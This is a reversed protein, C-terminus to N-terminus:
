SDTSFIDKSVYSSDESIQFDPGFKKKLNDSLLNYIDQSLAEQQMQLGFYKKNESEALAAEFPSLSVFYIKSQQIVGDQNSFIINSKNFDNYIKKLLTSKGVGNKGIICYVSKNLVEDALSKRPRLEIDDEVLDNNIKIIYDPFYSKRNAIKSNRIYEDAASEDRLLSNNLPNEFPQNTRGYPRSWYMDEPSNYEPFSETAFNINYAIDHMFDFFDNSNILGMNELKIINEYYTKSGYSLLGEKEGNIMERILDNKKHKLQDKFAIRVVGINFIKDYGVHKYNDPFCYAIRYLCHYGFDNWNDYEYYFTNGILEGEHKTTLDRIDFVNEFNINTM